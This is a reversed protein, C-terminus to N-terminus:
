PSCKPPPNPTSRLMDLATQAAKLGTRDAAPPPVRSERYIKGIVEGTVLARAQWKRAFREAIRLMLRRYIVVRLEPPAGLVVQQQMEPRPEPQNAPRLAGADDMPDAAAAAVPTAAPPTTGATPVPGPAPSGGFSLLGAAWAGGVAIGIVLLLVLIWRM